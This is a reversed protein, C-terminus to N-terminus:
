TVIGFQKLVCAKLHSEVADDKLDTGLALCRFRWGPQCVLHHSSQM